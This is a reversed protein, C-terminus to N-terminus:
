HGKLDKFLRNLRKIRNPTVPRVHALDHRADRCEKLFSLEEFKMGVGRYLHYFMEGLELDAADYVTEKHQLEIPMRWNGHYRHVFELRREELWPFIELLHAAWLARDFEESRGERILCLVHPTPTGSIEDLMGNEWSSEIINIASALDELAEWAHFIEEESKKALFSAIRPDWGAVFAVTSVLLTETLESKVRGDMLHHVYPIMDHRSVYGRWPIVCIREVGMALVEPTAIMDAPLDLFITPSQATSNRQAASAFSATFSTVKEFHLRIDDSRIIVVEHALESLGVLDSPRTVEIAKARDLLQHAISETVSFDHEISVENWGLFDHIDGVNEQIHMLHDPLRGLPISVGVIPVARIAAAIESIFRSPGTQRWWIDPRDIKRRRYV